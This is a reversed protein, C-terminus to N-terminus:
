MMVLICTTTCAHNESRASSPSFVIVGTAIAVGGTTYAGDVEEMYSRMCVVIHESHCFPYHQIHPNEIEIPRFFTRYM